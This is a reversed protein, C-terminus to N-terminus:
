TIGNKRAIAGTREDIRALIKGQELQEKAMVKALDENRTFRDNGSNLRSKIKEQIKECVSADIKHNLKNSIDELRKGMQRFAISFALLVLAPGGVIKLAEEIM